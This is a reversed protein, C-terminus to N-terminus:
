ALWIELTPRSKNQFPAKIVISRKIGFCRYQQFYLIYPLNIYFTIFDSKLFKLAVKIVFNVLMSAGYSMDIM